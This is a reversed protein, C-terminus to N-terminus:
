MYFSAFYIIRYFKSYNLFRLINATINDLLTHLLRHCKKFKTHTQQQSTMASFWVLWIPWNISHDRKVCFLLLICSSILQLSHIKCVSYFIYIKLVFVWVIYEIHVMNEQHIVFWIKRVFMFIHNTLLKEWYFVPVREFEHPGM